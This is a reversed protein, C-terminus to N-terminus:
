RARARVSPPEPDRTVYLTRFGFLALVFLLPKPHSNLQLITARISPRILKGISWHIYLGFVSDCWRAM